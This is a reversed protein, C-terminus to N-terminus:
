RREAVLHWTTGGCVPCANPPRVGSETTGCWECVWRTERVHRLLDARTLVGVLRGDRIVPLRRIRRTLFVEAADDLSCREEVTVVDRTMIDRVASGPKGLLDSESVIGVCHHELDVVPVSTIVNDVIVAVADDVSQDPGVTLVDRTMVDSVLKSQPHPGGRTPDSM